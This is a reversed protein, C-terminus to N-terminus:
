CVSSSHLHFTTQFTYASYIYLQSFEPLVCKFTGDAFMVNTSAMYSLAEKSGFVLIDEGDNTLLHHSKSTILTQINIIDNIKKM